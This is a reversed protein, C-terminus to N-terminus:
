PKPRTPLFAGIRICDKRVRDVARAAKTKQRACYNGRVRDMPKIPQTIYLLLADVSARLDRIEREM